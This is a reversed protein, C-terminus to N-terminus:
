ILFNCTLKWLLRLQLVFSKPKLMASKPQLVSRICLNCVCIFLIFYSQCMFNFKFYQLSMMTHEFSVQPKLKASFWNQTFVVLKGVVVATCQKHQPLIRTFCDLDFNARAKLLFSPLLISALHRSLVSLICMQHLGTPQPQDRIIASIQFGIHRVCFHSDFLYFYLYLYLITQPFRHTFGFFIHTM